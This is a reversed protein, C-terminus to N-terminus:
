PTAGGGAPGAAGVMGGPAGTVRLMMQLEARLSDVGDLLQRYHGILERFYGVDTKTKPAPLTQIQRLLAARETFNGKFAPYLDSLIFGNIQQDFVSNIKEIAEVTKGIRYQVEPWDSPLPGAGYKEMEKLTITRQVMALESVSSYLELLEAADQAQAESLRSAGSKNSQQLSAVYAALGQAMANMALAAERFGFRPKSIAPQAWGLCLLSAGNLLISRRLM